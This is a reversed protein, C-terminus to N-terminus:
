ISLEWATACDADVCVVLIKGITIYIFDVTFKNESMPSLLTESIEELVRKGFFASKWCSRRDGEFRNLSLKSGHENNLADRSKSLWRPARWATESLNSDTTFGESSWIFFKKSSSIQESEQFNWRFLTAFNEVKRIMGWKRGIQVQLRNMYEYNSDIVSFIIDAKEYQRWFTWTSEEFNSTM